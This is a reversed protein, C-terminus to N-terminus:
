LKKSIKKFNKELDSDNSAIAEDEAVDGFLGVGANCEGLYKIGVFHLFFDSCLCHIRLAKSVFSTLSGVVVDARLM